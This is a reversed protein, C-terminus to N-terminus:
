TLFRYAGLEHLESAVPPEECRDEIRTSFATFAALAFLPNKGDPTEISAIHVFSVGDGLTFTAYRLGEPKVRELEAFVARVYGANEAARDAKVRYRVMIRKM